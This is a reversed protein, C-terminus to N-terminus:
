SEAPTSDSPMRLLFGLMFVSGGAFLLLSSLHPGGDALAALSLTVTASSYFVFRFPKGSEFAFASLHYFALTLFILALLGIYYVALAPNISDARYTLVLRVVLAVPAVLLLSTNYASESSDEKRRCAAVSLFLAAGALLSLVGLLLQIRSSFLSETAAALGYPDAASRLQALLNGHTLGEFGDALGALAMLLSGAVPLLLQKPEETSFDEPFVPAAASGYQKRALVFLAASVLVLWVILAIGPLNGSVALGTASEFGTRNQLLRLIFAVAGGALATLPILNSTKM